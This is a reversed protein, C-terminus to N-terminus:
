TAALERLNPELFDSRNFGIFDTPNPRVLQARMMEVPSIGAALLAALISGASVGGFSECEGIDHSLIFLELASTFGLMVGYGSVGGGSLTLGVGDLQAM